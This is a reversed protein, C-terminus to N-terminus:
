GARRSAQPGTTTAAPAPATTDEAVPLHDTALGREELKRRIEALAEAGIGHAAYRARAQEIARQKRAAKPDFEPAIADGAVAAELIRALPLYPNAALNRQATARELDAALPGSWRRAFQHLFPGPDVPMPEATTEGAYRAAQAAYLMAVFELQVSAHDALDHFAEDREVGCARYAEEMARVSGGNLAGDLYMGVNIRAPVPPALFLQSYVVLLAQPEAIASLESQLQAIERALGYGIEQDLDALDRTLDGDLMARAHAEQMPPLLAAALCRYFDARASDLQQNRADMIM